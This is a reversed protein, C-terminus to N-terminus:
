MDALIVAKRLGFPLTLPMAVPVAKRRSTALQM